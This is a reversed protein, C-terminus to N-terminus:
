SDTKGADFSRFHIFRCTQGMLAGKRKLIRSCNVYVAIGWRNNDLQNVREKGM